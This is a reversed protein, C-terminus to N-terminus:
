EGSKARISYGLKDAKGCDKLSVYPIELVQMVRDLLGHIIEFGSGSKNYYLAALLRENGAGVDKGADKQVIDAVEFLKLPIPMKKNNAVTKLLGPLLSTRAVQFEWTKPNAIKVAIKTLHDEPLRM